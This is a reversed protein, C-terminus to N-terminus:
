SFTIRGRPFALLSLGLRTNECRLITNGPVNGNEKLVAYAFGEKSCYEIGKKVDLDSEEIDILGTKEKNWSWDHCSGDAWKDVKLGRYRGSKRYFIKM